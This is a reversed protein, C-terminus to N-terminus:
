IECLPVIKTGKWLKLLLIFISYSTNEMFFSYKKLIDLRDQTMDIKLLRCMITYKTQLIKLVKETVHIIDENYRRVNRGYGKIDKSIKQRLTANKPLSIEYFSGDISTILMDAQKKQYDLETEKYEGKPIFNPNPVLYGEAVVNGNIDYVKM